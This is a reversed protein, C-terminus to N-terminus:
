KTLLMKKTESFDDTTLRYFYVGSPYKSADFTVEYTGANLKENVLTEIEKGLIDYVKLIIMGGEGKKLPSNLAPMNFKIKTKPNFPNPYNQDLSYSPPVVESIQKIGIIENLPRRWIGTNDKGAFLYGNYIFLSRIGSGMPMGENRQTWTQGYNSSVNFTGDDYGAFINSGSSALAWTGGINILVSWNQGSNTSLYIHGGAGLFIYNGSITFCNPNVNTLTQTWNQGSNTSTYISGYDHNSSDCNAYINTGSGAIERMNYGYLAYQTWNQGNNTSRYIGSYFYTTAFINGGIVVLGLVYKNNLSTQTWNQGNNSSVYIGNGGTGAFINSGNVVLAYVTQNNLSSQVWNVGNNSSMYVGNSDTGAFIYNGNSTFPYVDHNNLSTQVWQASCNDIKLTCHVILVFALIYILKKM